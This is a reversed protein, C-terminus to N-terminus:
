AYRQELEARVAPPLGACGAFAGTGIRAAGPLRVAALDACGVFALKGITCLGSPLCLTAAPSRLFSTVRQQVPVPGLSFAFAGTSGRAAAHMRCTLLARVAARSLFPPGAAALSSCGNFANDGIRTVSDPIRVDALSSCGKFAATDIRTVSDPIRVDALSSCGWFAYAGISTVSDGIRVNTLATCGKFAQVGISTVSDPIHVETLSSCGKFAGISIATYRDPIVVAGSGRADRLLQLAADHDLM